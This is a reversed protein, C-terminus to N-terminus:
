IEGVEESIDTDWCDYTTFFEDEVYDLPYYLALIENEDLEEDLEYELTM